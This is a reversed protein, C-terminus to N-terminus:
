RVRFFRRAKKGPKAVVPFRLQAAAQELEPCERRHLHVPGPNWMKARRKWLLPTRLVREVITPPPSGFMYFHLSSVLPPDMFKTSNLDKLPLFEEAHEHVSKKSPGTFPCAKRNSRISVLCGLSRSRLRRLGAGFATLLLRAWTETASCVACRPRSSVYAM